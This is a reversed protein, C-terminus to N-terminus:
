SLSLIIFVSNSAIKRSTRFAWYLTFPFSHCHYFLFMSTLADHVLDLAAGESTGYFKTYRRCVVFLFKLDSDMIRRNDASLRIYLHSESYVTGLLWEQLFNLMIFILVIGLISHMKFSSFNSRWLLLLFVSITM